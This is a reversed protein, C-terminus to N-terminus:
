RRRQRSELVLLHLPSAQRRGRSGDFVPFLKELSESPSSRPTLRDGRGQQWKLGLSGALLVGELIQNDSERFRNVSEEGNKSTRRNVEWGFGALDLGDAGHASLLKVIPDEFGTLIPM